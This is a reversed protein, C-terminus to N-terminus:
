TKRKFYLFRPIFRGTHKSYEIYKEGFQTIMAHEEVRIVLHWIIHLVPVWIFCLWHNLYFALGPAGISIFSAYLPHRVWRFAGQTCLGRGRQDVPLSKFSWIVGAITFIIAIFLIALRVPYPIGLSGPYFHKQMWFIPILFCITFFVGVPGAGFLRIYTKM